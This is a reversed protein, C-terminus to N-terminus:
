KLNVGFGKRKSQNLAEVQPCANTYMCTLDAYLKAQEATNGWDADERRSMHGKDFGSNAYFKDELQMAYDIRTDRLWIDVRKEKDKRKNPNGDVNICSIIPMKRISHQIVSYHHYKLIQSDGSKLKAAFKLLSKQPMPFPIDVGMFGSNYGKCAAYNVANERDVKKIESFDDIDMGNNDKAMVRMFGNADIGKNSSINIAINGNAEVLSAPISLEINNSNNMDMNNNNRHESFNNPINKDVIPFNDAANSKKLDRVYNSNPQRSFIDDLIKSIRIGENAIWFIKAIDVKGNVPVIIKGDKDIYNRGDPTKAPVGMHHLAVVQWQDNFVPSGSSGQATDSEYWLTTPLIRKFKNERISLQKYDGEPHHIINLLEKEEEGLKGIDPDLYLYGISSLDINGSVDMKNVAVFCYDLEKSSYFFDNSNLKFVVPSGPRGFVNLEYSFQVESDAADAANQFVHWNTLLLRESVMFGTAYGLIKNNNKIVIRGVKQKAMTILECFNSYVSDNIGIAREFAFEPPETGIASIMEKRSQLNDDKALFDPKLKEPLDVPEDFNKKKDPENIWSDYRRESAELQDVSIM